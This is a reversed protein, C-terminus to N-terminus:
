NRYTGFRFKEIGPKDREQLIIAEMKAAIEPHQQAVDNQEAPDSGLHYLELPADPNTKVKQKVGKWDGMRVAIQGGYGAFDWFIFEHKKQRGGEGLLEPLISIGDSDAPAEAGAIQALTAPVDYHAGIHGSVTGPAIRGPWRAIFPERVGGEYVSGKLGRLEGVSDFFEYDVQKLYTAGNDSTFIVVTDKDIDLDKLLAFLRGMQKDMFTVMAAYCSRPTPHPLYAKGTYPTEEWEGQYADIEKQPAQLALHPIVTPYYVFFPREHNQKVFRLMEDAILQPAYQKGTVGRTNGELFEPKGDRDLYKPYLNHAHCQCNYGYFRDFGKKLPDGTTSAAGLGWKGFCGTAYGKAKLQEAITVDQERLPTQGGFITVGNLEYQKEKVEGNNRIYAHGGHKGTLLNCRAPGCVPAGTYFQTFRMGEAAMQDIYPTRIKRQGYCGLEKWGLDDALVLIINPKKPARAGALASGAAISASISLIFNRRNKM